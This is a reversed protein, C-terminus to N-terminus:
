SRKLPLFVKNGPDDLVARVQPDGLMSRITGEDVMRAAPLKEDLMEEVHVVISALKIVEGPGIDTLKTM